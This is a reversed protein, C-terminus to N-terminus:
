DKQLSKSQSSHHTLDFITYLIYLSFFLVINGTAGQRDSLILVVAFAAYILFKAVISFITLTILSQPSQIKRKTLLLHGGATITYLTIFIFLTKSPIALNDFFNVAGLSILVLIVTLVTLRGIFVFYKKGM